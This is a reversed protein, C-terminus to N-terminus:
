DEEVRCFRLVLYSYGFKEKYAAHDFWDDPKLLLEDNVHSVFYKRMVGDTMMYIGKDSKMAKVLEKRTLVLTDSVSYDFHLEYSQGLEYGERWLWWKGELMPYNMKHTKLIEFVSDDFSVRQYTEELYLGYNTLYGCVLSDKNGNMKLKMTQYGKGMTLTNSRLRYRTESFMEFPYDLWFVKNKQVRLFWNATDLVDSEWIPTVIGDEETAIPNYETNLGMSDAFRFLELSQKEPVYDVKVLKWDGFIQSRSYSSARPLVNTVYESTKCSILLGFLFYLHIFKRM